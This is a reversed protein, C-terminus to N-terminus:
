TWPQALLKREWTLSSSVIARLDDYRPLWGLEARIREARAVLYPPDGPRRPEERIALPKGAVTEVMHLVERVSYGHGYGVNLTV